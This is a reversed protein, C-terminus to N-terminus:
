GTTVAHYLYFKRRLAAHLEDFTLCSVKHRGILITDARWKLRNKNAEDLSASRGIVLLGTFNTHGPGFTTGFRQTNKFDELNYFWDVM